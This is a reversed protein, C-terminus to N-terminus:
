YGYIHRRADFAERGGELLDGALNRVSEDDISGLGGAILSGRGGVAELAVVLEADGLM